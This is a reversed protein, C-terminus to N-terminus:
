TKSTEETFIRVSNAKSLNLFQLTKLPREINLLERIYKEIFGIFVKEIDESINLNDVDEGSMSIFKRLIEENKGSFSIKYGCLKIFRLVFAIYIRRPNKSISILELARKLLNYKDINKDFDVTLLDVVEVTSCSYLYKEKHNKIDIFIDKLEGGVIRLFSYNGKSIYFMFDSETVPETISLLKASIKVAGPAIAHVKGLDYTYISLLKDSEKVVEKRLVIGKTKKYM